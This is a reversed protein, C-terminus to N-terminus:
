LTGRGPVQELGPNGFDPHTTPTPMPSVVDDKEAWAPFKELKKLTSISLLGFGVKSTVDLITYLMAEVGDSIADIGTDALIWVIPYATWLVLHVTLLRQFADKGVKGPHNREAEARYSSLLICAVGIYAGCSIFYWTINHPKPYVDALFGTALMLANAGLLGGITSLRTRGLHSLVLLLLPTSLFWTVYRVWHSNHDNYISEGQGTLIVLYLVSAITAIFFNLMLLIRWRESNASSAKYGFFLAGATMSIFGILTWFQAM